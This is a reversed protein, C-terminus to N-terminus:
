DFLELTDQDLYAIIKMNQQHMYIDFAEKKGTEYSLVYRLGDPNEAILTRYGADKLRGNTSGTVYFGWEKATFDFEKEDPGLFTILENAELKIDSMHSLTVDKVTFERPPTKKVIKM